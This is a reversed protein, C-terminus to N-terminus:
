MENFTNHQAIDSCQREIKIDYGIVTATHDLTCLSKYQKFMPIAAKCEARAQFIDANKRTNDQTPSASWSKTLGLSL